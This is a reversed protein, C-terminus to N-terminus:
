APILIDSNLFKDAHNRTFEQLKHFDWYQEFDGSSRLARIQLVAEARDLRWRAGTIDMRDKVLHRCAGEIVGSAIPYGKSLFQDYQLHKRYKLLYDACKDANERASESLKQLTASRRIGAAVDSVKGQLLRLARAMVWPEAEKAGPTFFCHAAKWLYELVHIFDLVISVSVLNNKAAAKIAELQQLSGDVLVVWERQHQPDRRTAEEFASNIVEVSDDRVSAWVRKNSIAPREPKDIDTGIIQEPQRVFRPTSYV